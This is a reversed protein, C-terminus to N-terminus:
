KIRNNWHEVLIDHVDDKIPFMVSTSALCKTCEIYEGGENERESIEVYQSKGGCFPCRKLKEKKNM